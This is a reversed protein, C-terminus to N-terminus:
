AKVLLSKSVEGPVVAPGTEGGKLAADLSDLRLHGKQKKEAQCKDCNEALLPRVKTEFFKVQDVTPEASRAQVAVLLLLLAAVAALRAAAHFKWATRNM